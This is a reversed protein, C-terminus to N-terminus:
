SNMLSNFELYITDDFNHEEIKVSGSDAKKLKDTSILFYKYFLYDSGDSSVPDDWTLDLHLWKNNIYVANWIHGYEAGSINEAPTAIKYNKYGMKTLIIAMADAYGNCIAKGELLAGYAIHSQYESTGDQGRIVDYKAHNIIYDHFHKITEKMKSPETQVTLSAPYKNMLEDVKQEIAEIQEETYLYNPTIIIEGNSAVSTKLSAFSNYPHVFDNIYTLILKNNRLEEIDNICQEYESPCYFTFSKWGNNITTYIINMLDQRSYPVFSDTLQVFGFTSDDGSKAYKNAEPIVLTPSSTIKDAILDTVKDSKYFALALLLICIIPIIIKKM